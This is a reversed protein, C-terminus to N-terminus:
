LGPSFVHTAGLREAGLMLGSSDRGREGVVRGSLGLHEWGLPLEATREEATDQPVM